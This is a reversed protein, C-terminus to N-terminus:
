LMIELDKMADELLGIEYLVDIVTYRKRILQAARIAHLFQERDLGIDSAKVPCNVKLLMDRLTEYSYIQKSLSQQLKPWVSAILERRQKLADGELFKELATDKPANGGYCGKVLLADIEAIREACSLGPKMRPALEKLDHKIIYEQLLTSALSGIGVKFGHSVDEGNYMLGEMEWIHSYLHEAGSAPRSDNYIQMTYGTVALGEFIGLLEEPNSLWGRLKPQILDWVDKRIPEIGLADAIYWDGGAPIKAMLDAYGSAFMPQPATKLILSDACIAYPAPCKVTKKFNNVSMAGGASTYGDVSCATPVCCYHVNNRGATCKTIDNIVGSGVAVPVCNEPMMDALKICYDYDPHLRPTGPFIYPDFPNLGANKLLNQATEGAVRWTNEDAIIWPRLGPFALKLLEPLSSLAGEANAFFATQLGSPIPILPITM